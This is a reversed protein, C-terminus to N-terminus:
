INGGDVGVSEESFGAGILISKNEEVTTTFKCSAPSLLKGNKLKANIVLPEIQSDIDVILEDITAVGDDFYSVILEPQSELLLKGIKAVYDSDTKTNMSLTLSGTHKLILNDVVTKGELRVTTVGTNAIALTDIQTNNLFLFGNTAGINSEVNTARVNELTVGESKIVLFQTFTANKITVPRAIEFLDDYTHKRGDIEKISSDLLQEEIDTTPNEVTCSITAVALLALLILKVRFM